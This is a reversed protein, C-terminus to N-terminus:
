AADRMVPTSQEPNASRVPLSHLSAGGIESQRGRVFREIDGRAIGIDRLLHDDLRRLHRIARNGAQWIQLQRRIGAIRQRLNASISTQMWHTAQTHTQKQYHM